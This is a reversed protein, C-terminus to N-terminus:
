VAFGCAKKEQGKQQDYSYKMKNIAKRVDEKMITSLARKTVKNSPLKMTRAAAEVMVNELLSRAERGNGFNRDLTREQFYNVIENRVAKDVILKNSAAMAYFIDTVQEPTYSDFYITSNIRSRIGPNADIFKKMKNDNDSVKSGGYGAFIVLKDMGHNELEIILQAIAEEAFSDNEGETHISYAEDIFIVDNEQFLAHVKPASHGVYMGKLDAGNVSKFRNGPLLKEDMMMKALLKAVTTKATGPAGILMHVNHYGCSGLGMSQRRKSYKMVNVISKIQEKVYDMGVLDTDLSNKKTNSSKTDDYGLVKFKALVEFHDRTLIKENHQSIVYRIVKDILEIKNSNNINTIKKVIEAKPFANSLKRDHASILSEFITLYFKNRNEESTKIDVMGAVYSLTIECVAVELDKKLCKYDQENDTELDNIVLLYVRNNSEFRHMIKTLQYFGSFVGESLKQYICIPTTNVNLWYPDEPPAANWGAMAFPGNGMCTDHNILYRNVADSSVVPIHLPNDFINQTEDDLMDEDNYFVYDDNDYYFDSIDDDFEMDIKEHVDPTDKECHTDSAIAALYEVAMLAEEYSKANIISFRQAGNEAYKVLEAFPAAGNKVDAKLKALSLTPDVNLYNVEQGKGSKSYTTILDPKILNLKKM